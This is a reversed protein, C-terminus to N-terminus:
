FLIFCITTDSKVCPIPLIYELVIRVSMHGASCGLADASRGRCSKRASAASRRIGAEPAAAGAPLCYTYRSSVPPLAAHCAVAAPRGRLAAEASSSQRLSRPHHRAAADTRCPLLGPRGFSYRRHEQLPVVWVAATVRQCEGAWMDLSCRSTSHYKLVSVQSGEAPQGSLFAEQPVQVRGSSM